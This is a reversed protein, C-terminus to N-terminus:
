TGVASSVSDAIFIFFALLGFSALGAVLGCLLNLVYLVTASGSARGRSRARLANSCGLISLPLTGIALLAAVLTGSVGFLFAGCGPFCNQNSFNPWSLCLFGSPNKAEKAEEKAAEQNEETDLNQAVSIIAFEGAPVILFLVCASILLYVLSRRGARRADRVGPAEPTDLLEDHDFGNTESSAPGM